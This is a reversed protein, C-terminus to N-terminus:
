EAAGGAYAGSTERRSDRRRDSRSRGRKDRYMARDAQELVEELAEPTNGTVATGISASVRVNLGDFTMPASLRAALRSQLEEIDRWREPTDPIAGIWCVFEDGSLRVALRGRGCHERLRRAVERLVRDGVRHGHTDNLEKFGNLDLMLAGVCQGPRNRDRRFAERLALRNGLGTLPDTRLERHLRAAYRGTFAWCAATLCLASALLTGGRGADSNPRM